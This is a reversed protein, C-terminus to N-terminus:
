IDSSTGWRHKRKRNDAPYDMSQVISNESFLVMIIQLKCELHIRFIDHLLPLFIQLSKHSQADVPETHSDLREVIPNEAPHVAPVIRFM